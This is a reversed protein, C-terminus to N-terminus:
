NGIATYVITCTGGGVFLCKAQFQSTTVTGGVVWVSPLNSTNSYISVNVVFCNNPFTKTFGITPNSGSSQGTVSGWQLFLNGSSNGPLTTFGSTGVSPAVGTLQYVTGNSEQQVFLQANGDSGQKSYLATEDAATGPNSGQEPFSCFKHKGAGTLNPFIHNVGVTNYYNTFNNEIDAQTQGLTQTNTPINPTFSM